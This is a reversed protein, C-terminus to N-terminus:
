TAKARVYHTRFAEEAKWVWTKDAGSQNEPLSEQWAVGRLYEESLEIPSGPPFEERM